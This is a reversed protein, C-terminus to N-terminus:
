VVVGDTSNDGPCDWARSLFHGSPAPEFTSGM